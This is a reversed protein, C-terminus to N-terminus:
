KYYYLGNSGRDPWYDVCPGERCIDVTLCHLGGDWFGRTKFDIVHVTFGMSELKKCALDDEAICFINKDDVVLMNVEFVTEQSNGIWQHARRVVDENFIQYHCGPVWWKGNYGNNKRNKTTDNLFFVDWGPFTDKYLLRYHTSFINKPSVPCFVGDSHDGTHTIHVRYDNALLEAQKLFHTYGDSDQKKDLYIDKGLRVVSPFEVYCMLDPMSRDLVQVNLNQTRYEQITSEFSTVSNKYQPLVYLTSGLTLAWDRPTIPPKCLNGDEDIYKEISEFQPRRVTIGLEELKNQFKNLDSKTSETILSFFDKARSDYHDYYSEPYCDGLWVEKLSQFGSHSNILNM